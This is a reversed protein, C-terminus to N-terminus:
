VLYQQRPELEIAKWYIVRKGTVPSEKRCDEEVVGLKVLENTRPTVQNIPIRLHSAIDLNSASSLEKIANFVNRRKTPLKDIVSYYSDIATSRQNIKM